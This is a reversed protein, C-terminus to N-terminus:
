FLESFSNPTRTPIQLDHLQGSDELRMEGVSPDWLGDESATSIIFDLMSLLLLYTGFYKIRDEDNTKKRLCSRPPACLYSDLQM